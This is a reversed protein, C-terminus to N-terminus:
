WFLNPFFFRVCVHFPVHVTCSRSSRYSVPLGSFVLLLHPVMNSQSPSRDWGCPTFSMVKLNRCTGFLTSHVQVSWPLASPQAPQVPPQHPPVALACLEGDVVVLDGSLWRGRRLVLTCPLVRVLLGSSARVPAPSFAPLVRWVSIATCHRAPESATRLREMGGALQGQKRAAATHVPDM